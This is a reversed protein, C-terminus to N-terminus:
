NDGKTNIIDKIVILSQEIYKDKKINQLWEDNSAIRSSDELIHPMDVELNKVELGDIIKDLAKKYYDDSKKRM